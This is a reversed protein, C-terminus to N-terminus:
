SRNGFLKKLAEAAAERSSSVSKGHDKPLGGPNARSAKLDDISMRTVSSSDDTPPPENPPVTEGGAGAETAAAGDAEEMPMAAATQTTDHMGSPERDALLWRSVEDEDNWSSPEAAQPAADARVTGGAVRLELAGVKILDDDYVKTKEAIRQGNVFTGNRSGLDEVWVVDPEIRVACHRRSVEDSLPRIDCEDARGILLKERKVAIAKGASKGSAIVLKTGM